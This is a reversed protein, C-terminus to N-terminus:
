PFSVEGLSHFAQNLGKFSASSPQLLHDSGASCGSDGGGRFTAESPAACLAGKHAAALTVPFQVSDSHGAFEALGTGSGGRAESSM